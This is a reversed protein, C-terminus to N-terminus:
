MRALAYATHLKQPQLMRVAHQIEGKLGGLFISVSYAQSLSVRNILVDFQDIYDKLSGSQVLNTLDAMPDEYAQENFRANMAQVYEEWTLPGEAETRDKLFGRHWILAKGELHIVVLRLKYEDTIGEFEFFRECLYLWDLFGEGNFRPFEIKGIRGFNLPAPEARVAPRAPEGQGLTSQTLRALNSAMQAQQVGLDGVMNRLEEMAKESNEFKQFTQERLENVAQDIRRVEQARTETM